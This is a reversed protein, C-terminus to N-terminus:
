KEKGTMSLDLAAFHEHGEPGVAAGITELKVLYPGEHDLVFTLEGKSKDKANFDVTVASEAAVEKGLKPTTPQNLMEQKVVFFHVLVNKAAKDSVNTASWHITIKDGIKGMLVPRAKPKVGPALAEGGVTKSVDGAQVRLELTFHDAQAPGALFLAVLGVTTCCTPHTM